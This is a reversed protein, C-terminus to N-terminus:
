NSGVRGRLIESGRRWQRADPREGKGPEPPRELLRSLKRTRAARMAIEGCEAFSKKEHSVECDVFGARRKCAPASPRSGMGACTLHLLFTTTRPESRSLDLVSLEVGDRQLQKLFM